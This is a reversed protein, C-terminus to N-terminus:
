VTASLRRRLENLRNQVTGDLQVGDVELRIGGLCGSDVKHGLAITKGTIAALKQQLAVTQEESMPVATIATAVLIGNEDNYRATFQASCQALSRIAGKECLIKLFNLLYPEIQGRFAEDLASCRQAKPVSPLSLLKTYGPNAEFLPVVADLQGKITHQLSEEAALDYLANGYMKGLATM